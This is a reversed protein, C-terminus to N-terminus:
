GAGAPLAIARIRQLKTIEALLTELGLKGPDAKLEAFFGSEDDGDVILAWLSQAVGASLRGVIMACFREDAIRNASGIIRSMRGPPEIREARCRALVAERQRDENLESPCVEQALWAIMKDEDGRTSVRFGLLERIQTRFREVARGTVEFPAGAPVGLQRAVFDVAVEPLEGRHRPFRGEIEFFKVMLAFSLRSPPHLKVLLEQDADVLTWSAILDDLEWERRM